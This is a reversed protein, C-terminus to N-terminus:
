LLMIHRHMHSLTITHCHSLTVTHCHSLTITHCHSLTVTHYHSLTVTHSCIFLCTCWQLEVQSTQSSGYKSYKSHVPTSSESEMRGSTRFPLSEATRTSSLDHPWQSPPTELQGTYSRKQPREIVLRLISKHPKMLKKINSPKEHGIMTNNIQTTHYHSPTITHPHTTHLNCLMCISYIVILYALVYNMIVHDIVHNIVHGFRIIVHNLTGKYYPRWTGTDTHGTRIFSSRCSHVLNVMRLPIGPRNTAMPSSFIYNVLSTQSNLLSFTSVCTLTHPHSPTHTISSRLQKHILYHLHM